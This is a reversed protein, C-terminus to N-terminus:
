VNVLVFVLLTGEKTMTNTLVFAGDVGRVSGKRIPSSDFSTNDLSVGLEEDEELRRNNVVTVDGEGLSM